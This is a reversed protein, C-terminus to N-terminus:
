IGWRALASRQGGTRRAMGTDIEPRHLIAISEMERKDDMEEERRRDTGRERKEAEGRKERYTEGVTM